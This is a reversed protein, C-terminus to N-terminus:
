LFVEWTGDHNFTGLNGSIKVRDNTGQGGHYDSALSANDFDNNLIEVYDDGAGVAFTLDNGWNGVFHVIDNGGDDDIVHFVDGTNGGTSYGGMGNFYQGIRIEDDNESGHISMTSSSTNLTSRAFLIFDNGTNGNITPISGTLNCFDVALTDPGSGGTLAVAAIASGAISLTDGDDGGAWNNSGTTTLYNCNLIDNGAGLQFSSGGSSVDWIYVTDNESEGEVTLLGDVIVNDALPDAGIRVVDNGAGGNIDLEHEVTLGYVRVEDAGNGIDVRIHRTVGTFTVSSTSNVTTASGGQTFGTVSVEGATGTGRLEIGNANADGTLLLDGGGTVTGTVDGALVRRDELSEFGL